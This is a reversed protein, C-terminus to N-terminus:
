GAVVDQGSVKVAVPALPAPAPGRLVAGTFADFLSGHCPCSLRTGAAQVACGAHTCVASHAVVHGAAPQALVVAGAPGTTAVSGGVPVDALKAIPTGAALAAPASSTDPAAANGSGCAALTTGGLATVLGLGVVVRRREPAPPQSTAEPEMGPVM